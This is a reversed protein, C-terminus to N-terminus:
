KLEIHFCIPIQKVWDDFELFWKFETSDNNVNMNNYYCEIDYHMKTGAGSAQDRNDDWMKKIEDRTKGYYKNKKWNKSNMMNTIIKDADFHEFHSHNWTTVSM